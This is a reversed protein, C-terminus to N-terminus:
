KANSVPNVPLEAGEKPKGRAVFDGADPALRLADLSTLAMVIALGILAFHFEATTPPGAGGASGVRALRLAVAGIAVGFGLALQFAISIMTNASNMLSQPVDAYALSNLATFQLSRSAGSVLLVLLIVALPTSPNLAACALMTVAQLVGNVFLVRRFGWLRLIPNTLPKIGFNGAFLGLVILGAHFADMGFGLQFLLPLLFPMTGVLTRMLTGGFLTARFTPIDLPSLDFLPFPHRRLHRLLLAFVCGFVVLLLLPKTFAAGPEGLLDFLYMAALCAGAGLVFGGLDFPTRAEDRGVPVLRLALLLAVVGLPVNIFFIWRWSLYVTLFGGIPPAIIPAALGPWTLVAMAGMLEHKPTARLVALRGVPVMMSGGLGQLIRAAIFEPASSAFGCLVSGLVFVAIAITFIRRTGYRRAAWGSPLIFVAVTFLYASIGTNLSVASSHLSEAMRPLATAIISGDLFEMFFTGAVLM